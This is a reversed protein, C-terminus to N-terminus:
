YKLPSTCDRVKCDQFTSDKIISDCVTSDCVKSNRVKSDRVISDHVKSNSVICNRLKCGIFISGGVIPNCAISYLAEVNLSALDQAAYAEPLPCKAASGEATTSQAKDEASQPVSM